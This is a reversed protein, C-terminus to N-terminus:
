RASLRRRADVAAPSHPFRQLLTRYFLEADRPLNLLDFCMGMRLLADPVRESEPHERRLRNYTVVAQQVRMEGLYTEGIQFLIEDRLHEVAPDDTAEIARYVARAQKWSGEAMLEEAEAAPQQFPGWDVASFFLTLLWAALV